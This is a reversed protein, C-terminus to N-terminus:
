VIKGGPVGEIEFYVDTRKGKRGVSDERRSTNSDIREDTQEIKWPYWIVTFDRWENGTVKQM